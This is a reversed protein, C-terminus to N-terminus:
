LCLYYGIIEHCTIVMGKEKVKDKSQVVMCNGKPSLKELIQGSKGESM